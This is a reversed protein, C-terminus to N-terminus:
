RDKSPPHILEDLFVFRYGQDQLKKIIVPLADLTQSRDKFGSVGGADHLIIIDGSQVSSLVTEIIYETGPLSVDGAKVSGNIIPLNLERCVAILDKSVWGMPSRFYRPYEGNIRYIVEQTERIEMRMRDPPLWSLYFLHRLSHNGIEHGRSQVQRVGEPYTQAQRGIMFFTARVNFRDLIALVQPTYVPDPGDDFTLAVVKEETQGKFFVGQCGTFILLVALFFLSVFRVAKTAQFPM